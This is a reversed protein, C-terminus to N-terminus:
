SGFCALLDSLTLCLFREERDQQGVRLDAQHYHVEVLLRHPRLLQPPSLLPDAPYERRRRTFHFGSPLGVYPLGLAKSLQITCGCIVRVTYDTSRCGRGM